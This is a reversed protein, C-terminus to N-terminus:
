SGKCEGELHSTPSNRVGMKVLLKQHQSVSTIKTLLDVLQLHTPVYSPKILGEVVKDRVFHLDVEIHKTREHFVLNAAIYLAVQNDCKLNVSPLKKLGLDKLLQM